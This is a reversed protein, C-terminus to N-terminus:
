QVLIDSLELHLSLQKYVENSIYINEDSNIFFGLIDQNRIFKVDGSDLYEIISNQSYAGFDTIKQSLNELCEFECNLITNEANLFIPKYYEPDFRFSVQEIESYKVVSYQM